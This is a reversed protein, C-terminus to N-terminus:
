YERRGTAENTLGRDKVIRDALWIVCVIPTGSRVHVRFITCLDMNQRQRDRGQICSAESEPTARALSVKARRPVAFWGKNRVKWPDRRWECRCERMVWWGHGDAWGGRDGPLQSQLGRRVFIEGVECGM